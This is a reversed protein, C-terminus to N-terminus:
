FSIYILPRIECHRELLAVGGGSGVLFFIDSGKEQKLTALDSRTFNWFTFFYM